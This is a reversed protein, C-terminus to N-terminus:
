LLASDTIKQKACIKVTNCLAVRGLGIGWGRLRLSLVTVYGSMLHPLFGGKDPTQPLPPLPNGDWCRVGGPSNILSTHNPQAMIM